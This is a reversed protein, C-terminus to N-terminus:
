SIILHKVAKTVFLDGDFAAFGMWAKELTGMYAENFAFLEYSGVQRIRYKKFDGFLVPKLGTTAAPLWDNIYVPHGELRDPMGKTIDGLQWMPRDDGTGFALQMIASANASNFMYTGNNRYAQDVSMKLEVLKNRTISASTAGLTSATHVGRPKSSGDGTTFHENTGIMMRQALTDRIYAVLDYKSDRIVQISAKILGTSYMYSDLEVKAFSTDKIGVASAHEAVIYAKETDEGTVQILKNGNATNFVDALGYITGYTTMIKLIDNEWETPILYGGLSDTGTTQPNTGRQETVIGKELVQMHKMDTRERKQLWECFSREYSDAKPDSVRDVIGESMDDVLKMRKENEAQQKLSEVQSYMTNFQTQEDASLSRKEKDARSKLDRMQIAINQRQENLENLTPM